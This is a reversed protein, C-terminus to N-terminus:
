AVATNTVLDQFMQISGAIFWQKEFRIYWYVFNSHSTYIVVFQLGDDIRQIFIGVRHQLHHGEVIHILDQFLLKKKSLFAIDKM